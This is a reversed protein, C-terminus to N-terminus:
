IIAGEKVKMHEYDVDFEIRIGTRDNRNKDIGLYFRNKEKDKATQMMISFFDVTDFIGRSESIDKATIIGKSGGRDSMGERNIQCATLIPVYLSKGINRLEETVVKYYRYSNDSSLFRDNTKMILIYDAIILDPKWKEYMWLDNIHSMLDNSSVSNSGYEKVILDGDTLNIIRTLKEKAGYEDLIIEKKNMQALNSFFRMNLRERSTEFTYVLVKKGRLFQNIGINGLLLTKGGGPIASICYIEKPHLGGDLISDLNSFGTELCEEENLKKIEKFAKDINRISIGLDKDFSVRIAEEMRNAISAFNRKDIDDQSKMFAEYVRAEKIFNILEEELYESTIEESDELYMNSVISNLIFKWEEDGKIKEILLKLEKELPFKKFKDYWKCFLNFVTQYNKDSFYSKEKEKSTDLYSKIKLFLSINNLCGSLILPELLKSPIKLNKLM